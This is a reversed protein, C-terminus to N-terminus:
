FLVRIPQGLTWERNQECFMSGDILSLIRGGHQPHSAVAVFTPVGTMNCFLHHFQEMTTLVNFRSVQEQELQWYGDRDPGSLCHLFLRASAHLFDFAIDGRAQYNQHRTNAGMFRSGEGRGIDGTPDYDVHEHAGDPFTAELRAIDAAVTAPDDIEYRFQINKGAGVAGYRTFWFRRLVNREIIPLLNAGVFSEFWTEQRDYPPVDPIYLHLSKFPM